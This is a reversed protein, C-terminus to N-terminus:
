SKIELQIDAILFNFETISLNNFNLYEVILTSINEGFSTIYLM